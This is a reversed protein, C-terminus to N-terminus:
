GSEALAKSKDAASNKGDMIYVTRKFQKNTQPICGVGVILIEDPGSTYKFSIADKSGNSYGWGSGFTVGRQVARLPGFMRLLDKPYHPCAVISTTTSHVAFGHQKGPPKEEWKGLFGAPVEPADEGYGSPGLGAVSTSRASAASSDFANVLPGLLRVLKDDETPQDGKSADGQKQTSSREMEALFKSVDPLKPQVMRAELEVQLQGQLSVLLDSLASRLKKGRSDLCEMLGLAAEVSSSSTSAAFEREISGLHKLLAVFPATGVRRLDETDMQDIAASAASTSAAEDTAAVQERLMKLEEEVESFLSTPFATPDTLATLTKRQGAAASEDGGDPLPVDAGAGSAAPVEDIDESQKSEAAGGADVDELMGLGAQLGAAAAQDLHDDLADAPLADRSIDPFMGAFDAQPALYGAFMPVLNKSSSVSQLLATLLSVEQAAPDFKHQECQQLVAATLEHVKRLQTAPSPLLLPMLVRSCLGAEEAVRGSGLSMARRLSTDLTWLLM